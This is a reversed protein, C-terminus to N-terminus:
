SLEDLCTDIYFNNPICMTCVSYFNSTSKVWSITMETASQIWRPVPLPGCVKAMTLTANAEKGPRGRKKNKPKRETYYMSTSSVTFFLSPRIENMVHTSALHVYMYPSPGINLYTDFLSSFHTEKQHLRTTKVMSVSCKFPHDLTNNKHNPGEERCGGRMCRVDNM